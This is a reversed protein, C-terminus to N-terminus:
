FLVALVSSVAVLMEFDSEIRKFAGGKSLEADWGISTSTSSTTTSSTTSVRAPTPNGTALSSLLADTHAHPRPCLSQVM